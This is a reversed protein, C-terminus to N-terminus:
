TILLAYNHDKHDERHPVKRKSDIFSLLDASSKLIDNISTLCSERKVVDDSSSKCGDVGAIFKTINQYVGWKENRLLNNERDKVKTNLQWRM